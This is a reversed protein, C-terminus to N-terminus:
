ISNEVTFSIPNIHEVGAFQLIQPIISDFQDFGHSGGTQVRSSVGAYHQLADRYDLVEDGTQLFLLYRNTDSLQQCAMAQLQAAHEPYMRYRGHLLVSPEKGLWDRLMRDPNVAPNVLVANLSHDSESQGSVAHSSVSQGSLSRGAVSGLRQVHSSQKASANKEVLWTAYFGGLSSGVLTIARDHYRRLLAEICAVAQAPQHSLAPIVIQDRCGIQAMRALLAQAKYAQPSSNFGHLYIILPDSM